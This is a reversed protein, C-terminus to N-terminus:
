RRNKNQLGYENVTKGDAKKRTNNLEKLPVKVSKMSFVELVLKQKLKIIINELFFM